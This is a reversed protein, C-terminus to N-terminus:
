TLYSDTTNTDSLLAHQWLSYGTKDRASYCPLEQPQRYCLLLGETSPDSVDRTRSHSTRSFTPTISRLLFHLLVMLKTQVLKTGQNNM